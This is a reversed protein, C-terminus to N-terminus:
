LEFGGGLHHNENSDDTTEEATQQRTSSDHRDDATAGLGKQHAPCLCWIAQMFFMFKLIQVCLRPNASVMHVHTSTKKGTSKGNVLGGIEPSDVPFTTHHGTNQPGRISM